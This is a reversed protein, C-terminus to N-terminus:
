SFARGIVPIKALLGRNHDLATQMMEGAVGTFAGYLVVMAWGSFTLTWYTRNWLIFQDPQVLTTIGQFLIIVFASAACALFLQLTGAVAIKVGHITLATTHPHVCFAVLLPSLVGVAMIKFYSKFIGYIIQVAILFYAFSFIMVAFWDDISDTFGIDGWTSRMIPFMDDNFMLEATCLIGTIGGAPVDFGSLEQLMLNGLHPGANLIFMFGGWVLTATAATGGLCALIVIYRFSDKFIQVAGGTEQGSMIDMARTIIMLILFLLVAYALWEGTASLSAAILQTSSASLSEMIDGTFCNTGPDPMFNYQDGVPLSYGQAAASGPMIPLLWFLHKRM